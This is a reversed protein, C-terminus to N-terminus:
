SADGLEKILADTYDELAEIDDRDVGFIPDHTLPITDERILDGTAEKRIALTWVQAAEADAPLFVDIGLGAETVSAYLSRATQNVETAEHHDISPSTEQTNPSENTEM